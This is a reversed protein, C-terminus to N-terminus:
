DSMFHILEKEKFNALMSLKTNLALFLSEPVGERGLKSLVDSLKLRRIQLKKFSIEKFNRL